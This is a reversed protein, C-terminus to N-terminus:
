SPGIDPPRWKPICQTKLQDNYGQIFPAVGDFVADEDVLLPKVEEWLRDYAERM